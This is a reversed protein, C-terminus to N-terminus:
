KFVLRTLHATSGPPIKENIDATIINKMNYSFIANCTTLYINDIERVGLFVNRSNRALCYVYTIQKIPWIYIKYILESEGDFLRKEFTHVTYCFDIDFRDCFM